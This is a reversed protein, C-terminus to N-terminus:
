IALRLEAEGAARGAGDTCRQLYPPASILDPDVPEARLVVRRAQPQWARVLVPCGAVDLLRTAVGGGVRMVRDEGGFRPMLFPSPPTVETELAVGRREGVSCTFTSSSRAAPSWM